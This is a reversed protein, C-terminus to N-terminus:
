EEEDYDEFEDGDVDGGEDVIDVHDPNIGLKVLRNRATAATEVKRHHAFISPGVLSLSWGDAELKAAIEAAGRLRTSMEDALEQLQAATVDGLGPEDESEDEAELESEPKWFLYLDLRIM